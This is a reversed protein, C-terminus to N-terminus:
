DEVKRGYIEIEAFHLFEEAITVVRVSLGTLPKECTITYWTASLTEEPLNGCLKDDVDVQQKALRGGVTAGGERNLIKIETVEYM